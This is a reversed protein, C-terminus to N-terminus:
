IWFSLWRERKTQKSQLKVTKSKHKQTFPTQIIINQDSKAPSCPMTMMSKSKLSLQLLRRDVKTAVASFSWAALKSKLKFLSILDSYFSFFPLNSRVLNVKIQLFGFFCGIFLFFFFGLDSLLLMLSELELPKKEKKKALGLDCACDGHNSRFWSEQNARMSGTNKTRKIMDTIRKKKYLWTWLESNFKM